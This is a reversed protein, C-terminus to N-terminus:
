VKKNLYNKKYESAKTEIDKIFEMQFKWIKMGTLMEMPNSQFLDFIVQLNQIIAMCTFVIKCAYITENPNLGQIIKELKVSIHYQIDQSMMWYACLLEIEKQREESIGLTLHFILEDSVFVVQNEM